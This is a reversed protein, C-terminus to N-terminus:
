PGRGALDDVAAAFAAAQRSWDPLTRAHRRAARALTRRRDEDELLSRLAEALGDVDGPEVLIGADDPVTHPIAGGTTGVVPLGRSLAEAFAMGYGEYHSPLVFVTGTRYVEDLVEASLEGLFRVREVLRLREVASRVQRVFDPARELSGACDCRWALDDIRALAHVLVDHAKRPTVTGVCVLRPVEGEGAGEAMPGPDTGPLVSRVDSAAVGFDELRGATYPSTVIVGRVHGLAARESAEFRRRADPELGTEDALPHHVLAVLRLRQAHRATVEPAAGLALGDVVVTQGDGISALSEELAALARPDVDPFRGEVEHVAVSRGRTRLEAVIRADYLYGGTRQDLPGPVVLHVTDDRSM